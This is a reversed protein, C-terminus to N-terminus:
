PWLIAWPRQIIAWFVGSIWLIALAIGLAFRWSESAIVYLVYIAVGLLSGLLLWALIWALTVDMTEGM